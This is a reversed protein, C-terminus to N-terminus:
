QTRVQEGSRAYFYIDSVDGTPALIKLDYLLFGRYTILKADVVEGEATLRVRALITDLPVAKRSAVAEFSAQQDLVVLEDAASNGAEVSLGSSGLSVSLGTSGGPTSNSPTSGSGISIGVGVGGLNIGVGLGQASSSHALGSWALPAAILLRFPLKM